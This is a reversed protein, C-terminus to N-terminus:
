PIITINLKIEGEENDKACTISITGDCNQKTIVSGNHIIAPLGDHTGITYQTHGNEELLNLESEQLSEKDLLEEYM